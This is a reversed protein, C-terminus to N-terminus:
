EEYHKLYKNAAIYGDNLKYNHYMDHVQGIISIIFMTIRMENPNLIIQRESEEFLTTPIYMEYTNKLNENIKTNCFRKTVQQLSMFSATYYAQFKPDLAHESRKIYLIRLYMNKFLSETKFYESRLEEKFVHLSQFIVDESFYKLMVSNELFMKTRRKKPPSWDLIHSYNEWNGTILSPTEM